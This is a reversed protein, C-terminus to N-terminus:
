LWYQHPKAPCDPTPTSLSDEGLVPTARGVSHRSSSTSPTRPKRNCRHFSTATPTWTIGISAHGLRESVIKPDSRAPAAPHRTRPPPRPLSGAAPQPQPPPPGLRHLPHRPESGSRRRPRNGAGRGGVAGVDRTPGGALRATARSLPSHVRACFLEARALPRRSRTFSGKSAPSCPECSRCAASDVSLDTWRLALIEGRRMGTALAIACPLEYITGASEELLRQALDPDVVVRQSRKPRPPQVGTAPNVALLQWRVAQGLAQNLVLHLNLVTGGSLASRSESGDLLEGYLQQLRLPTLAALEVSALGSARPLSPPMRVRRLHRAAGPRSRALALRGSVWGGDAAPAPGALGQSRSSGYAVVSLETLVDRM